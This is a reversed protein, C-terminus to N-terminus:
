SQDNDIEETFRFRHILVRLDAIHAHIGPSGLPEAAFLSAYIQNWAKGEVESMPLLGPLPEYQKKNDKSM